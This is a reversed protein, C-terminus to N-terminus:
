FDWDEEDEGVSGVTPKIKESEDPGETSDSIFYVWDEGPRPWTVYGIPTPPEVVFRCMRTADTQNWAVVTEERVKPLNKKEKGTKTHPDAEFVLVKWLRRLSRSRFHPQGNDPHKLDKYIM